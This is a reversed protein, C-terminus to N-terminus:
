YGPAGLALRTRIAALTRETSGSADVRHWAIDGLSYGLQRRLVDVTADSADQGRSAVRSQLVEAPAELWLGDFAVGLERAVAEIAQREELRAHVADAIVGHGAKLAARARDRMTEYVRATMEDAYGEPGLRVNEDVGALHKRIVDSRLVLAGPVPGISPAVERAFTSKGTGSLGGIAVLRPSLPNLYAVARDLYKRAEVLLPVAAAANPQVKAVAVGVQARVGARTALFLPLTALGELDGIEGMMAAQAFYRNLVMNGFRGLGRHDLDMLLFALDYLVDICAIQDNFEIADFLIPKGEIMCINRLHLDGHCHRVLGRERRRDLLAGIRDLAADSKSRLLAVRELDFVGPGAERLGADNGAVVRAIGAAGGQDGRRAATEHLRLIADALESMIDRCLGDRAALRDFLAAQDFRRMVVVWDIVEGQGGLALRGSPGRVIPKVDLYLEPATRRNLTLEAECFRRRLALTSFDMYPFRVARKLKYARKGVLAVVAGHTDIREVPLGGHSKSDTLFAIAERQDEVVHSPATM